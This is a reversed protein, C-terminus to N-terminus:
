PLFIVQQSRQFNQGRVRYFYIGPILSSGEIQMKQSLGAPLIGDFVTQIPQGLANVLDVVVHQRERVTLSFQASQKFPNPFAQSLSFDEALNVFVEIEPHYEFAGDFDIQKLRFYHPGPNLDSLSFTYDQQEITTGNGEVFGHRTWNQTDLTRSEIQFGSNNVESATSWLLVLNRNDLHATFSILEVPLFEVSQFGMQIRFDFGNWGQDASTFTYSSNSAMPIEGVIGGGFPDTLNFAGFQNIARIDDPDWSITMSTTAPSVQYVISYDKIDDLAQPLSRCDTKTDFSNPSGLHNRLRVDIGGPPVPPLIAGDNPDTGNIDDISNSAICINLVQPGPVIGGEFTIEIPIQILTSQANAPLYVSLLLLLFTLRSALRMFM